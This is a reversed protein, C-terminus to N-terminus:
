LYYVKQNLTSLSKCHPVELNNHVFWRIRNMKSKKISPKNKRLPSFCKNRYSEFTLTQVRWLFKATWIISDKLFHSLNM